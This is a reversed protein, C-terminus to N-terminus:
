LEEHKHAWSMLHVNASMKTLAGRAAVLEKLSAQGNGDKDAVKLLQEMATKFEQLGSTWTFLEDLSVFGDKDADAEAFGEKDKFEAPSLKGDKDTDKATLMPEMELLALEHNIDLSPAFFAVLEEGSLKGNKDTDAIGFRKKQVEMEDVAEKGKVHKRIDKELEELTVAGDKNSDVGPPPKFDKLARRKETDLNFSQLEDLSLQGDKNSDIMPFLYHVQAKNLKHHPLPPAGPLPFDERM